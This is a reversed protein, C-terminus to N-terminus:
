LNFRICKFGLSNIYSTSIGDWGRGMINFDNFFFTKGIDHWKEVIKYEVLISARRLGQIEVFLIM